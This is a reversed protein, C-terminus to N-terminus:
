WSAFNEHNESYHDVGKGLNEFLHGEPRYISFTVWKKGRLNIEFCLCEVDNDVKLSKLESFLIDSRVHVLLGGGNTDRDMRLPDSYGEMCFQENPFSDDIKTEATVLIDINHNYVINKM